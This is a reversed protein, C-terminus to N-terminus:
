ELKGVDGSIPEAHTKKKRGERGRANLEEDAFRQDAHSRVDM